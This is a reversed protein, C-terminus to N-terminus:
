LNSKQTINFILNTGVIYTPMNYVKIDFRRYYSFAEQIIIADDSFIHEIMLNYDRLIFNLDNRIRNKNLVNDLSLHSVKKDELERSVEIAFEPIDTLFLRIHHLKSLDINDAAKEFCLRFEKLFEIYNPTKFPSRKTPLISDVAINDNEYQMMYLKSYDLNQIDLNGGGKYEDKTFIFSLAMTDTGYSVFYEYITSKVFDDKIENVCVM